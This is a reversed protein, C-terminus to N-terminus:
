QTEKSGDNAELLSKPDLRRESISKVLRAAKEPDVFALIKGANSGPMASLISVAVADDMSSMLSGAQEPKMGKFAAVLHEVRAAKLEDDELKQQERLAKQEELIAQNRAILANLEERTREGAQIKVTVDAELTKLAQERTDLDQERRNLEFEKRSLAEQRSAASSAEASPPLPAGTGQGASTVPAAGSNAPRNSPATSSPRQPLRLDEDEPALPIASTAAANLNAGLIM